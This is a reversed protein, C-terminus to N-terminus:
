VRGGERTKALIKLELNRTPQLPLHRLPVEGHERASIPNFMEPNM